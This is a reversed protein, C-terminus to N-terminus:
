KSIIEKIFSPNNVIEEAVKNAAICLFHISAGGLKKTAFQKVKEWIEPKRISNLLEHGNWTIDNIKLFTINNYKDVKPTGISAILGSKYLEEVTYIIESRMYPYKSNYIEDAIQVSTYYNHIHPNKDEYDEYILNDELFLLVDRVIDPIIKM